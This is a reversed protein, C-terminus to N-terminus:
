LELAPAPLTNGDSGVGVSVFQLESGSSVGSVCVCVTYANVAGCRDWVLVSYQTNTINCVKDTHGIFFRQQGSSVKMSVIIAHCPYVVEEGDRAWVAQSLSLFLSRSFSLCRCLSVFVSLIVSLSLCLPFCLSVFVFLCLTLSRSHSVSLSLSM